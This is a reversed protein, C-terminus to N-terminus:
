GQDRILDSVSFRINKESVKKISNLKQAAFISSFSISSSKTSIETWLLIFLKVSSNYNLIKM